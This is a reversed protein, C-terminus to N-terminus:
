GFKDSVVEMKELALCLQLQLKALKARLVLGEPLSEGLAALVLSLNLSNQKKLKEIAASLLSVTGLVM